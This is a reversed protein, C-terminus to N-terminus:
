RSMDSLTVVSVVLVGLLTESEKYKSTIHFIFRGFFLSEGAHMESIEACWL